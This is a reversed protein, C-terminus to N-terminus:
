PKRPPFSYTRIKEGYYSAEETVVGKTLKLKQFAKLKFISDKPHKNNIGAVTGVHSFLNYKKNPTFSKTDFKEPPKRYSMFIRYLIGDYLEGNLFTKGKAETLVDQNNAKVGYSAILEGNQNYYIMPACSTTMVAFVILLFFSKKLLM